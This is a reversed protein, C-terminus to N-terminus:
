IPFSFLVQAGTRIVSYAVTLTISGNASDRSFSLGQIVVRPEWTSVAKFIDSQLANQLVADDPDFIDTDVSSGFAKEILREGIQTGIIQRVSQSLLSTDGSPSDDFKALSIGGTSPSIRFPFAIGKYVSM